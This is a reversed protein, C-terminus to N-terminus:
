IIWTIKPKKRIFNLIHNFKKKIKNNYILSFTNLSIKKYSSFFTIFEEILDYVYKEFDEKCLAQPYDNIFKEVLKIIIDTESELIKNKTIEIGKIRYENKVAEFIGNKENFKIENLTLNLLDDLGYSEKKETKRALVPIFPLKPFLNNIQNKMNKVEKSRKAYSFVVIVPLHQANNKLENLSKKEDEGISNGNVCFWICHYYEKYREDINNNGRLYDWISVLFSKNLPSEITKIVEERINKIGYNDGFKYGRTDTIKLFDFKESSYQKVEKTCIDCDKGEEALKEQFLENILTSKRIGTRGTIIISIYELLNTDNDKPYENLLVRTKQKYNSEINEYFIIQEVENIDLCNIFIDKFKSYIKNMYDILNDNLFNRLYKRIEEQLFSFTTDNKNLDIASEQYNIREFIEKIINKISEDQLFKQNNDRLIFFKKNFKREQIKNYNINKSSYWNFSNSKNLDKKIKENIINILKIEQPSYSINPFNAKSIVQGNNESFAKLKIKFCIELYERILNNDENKSSLDTLRKVTKRFEEAILSLFVHFINNQKIIVEIINIQVLFNYNQELFKKTIQKFENLNRKNNINM